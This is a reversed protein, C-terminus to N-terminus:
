SKNPGSATAPHDAAPKAFAFEKGLRVVEAHLRRSMEKRDLGPELAPGFAVRARVQRKSLLNLFHPFFTMDGWYCVEAGVSGDELWYGIWAASVPWGNAAAPELLSSRFPLVRHGDSSTGEPFITVPLGCDIVPQFQAGVATVDGKRGRNLFLTGASRTLWGIVPWSRVEQKSVFIMPRSAGLLPIDVYSLHNCVLVGRAPPHGSIEVQVSLVRLFHPSWRRMWRARRRHDVGGRERWSERFLFDLLAALSVGLFFVLRWCV